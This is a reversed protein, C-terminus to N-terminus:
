QGGRHHVAIYIPTQAGIRGSRGIRGDSEDTRGHAQTRPGYPGMFVFLVLASYQGIHLVYVCIMYIYILNLTELGIYICGCGYTDMYM